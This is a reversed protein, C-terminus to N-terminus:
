QFESASTAAVATGNPRQAAQEARPEVRRDAGAPAQEDVEGLEDDHQGVGAGPDGDGRERREAHSAISRSRRSVSPVSTMAVGTAPRTASQANERGASM